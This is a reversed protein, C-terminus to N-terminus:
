SMSGKDAAFVASRAIRGQVRCVECPEADNDGVIRSIRQEFLPQLWWEMVFNVKFHVVLSLLLLLQDRQIDSM